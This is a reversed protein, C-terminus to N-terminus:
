KDKLRRLPDNYEDILAALPDSGHFFVKSDVGDKATLKCAKLVEKLAKPNIQNKWGPCGIQLVKYKKKLTSFLKKEVRNQTVDIHNHILNELDFDFKNLLTKLERYTIRYYKKDIKRTNRRIFESLFLVEADTKNKFKKYRPYSSYDNAAVNVALKEFDKKACTVTRGYKELQYILTLLATRKNGDHFSHGKILGFFLTACVDSTTVWKFREGFGTYQRGIASGLLNFDKVGCFAQTNEEAIFYDVILYHAKLVEQFSISNSRRPEIEVCKSLSREYDSFLKPHIKDMFHLRHKYLNLILTEEQCQM